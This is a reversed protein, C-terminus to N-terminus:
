QDDGIYQGILSDREAQVDDREEVLLAYQRILTDREARADDRERRLRDLEDLLGDAAEVNLGGRSEVHADPLLDGLADVYMGAVARAADQDLRSADTFPERSETHISHIVAAIRDVAEACIDDANM